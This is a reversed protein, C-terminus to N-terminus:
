PAEIVIGPDNFRSYRLTMTYPEGRSEGSHVLQLPLDDEGIWFTFEGPDPQTHRVRYKKAAVGHVREDGLAEVELDAKHQDIKLPDRWQALVGEPLPVQMTRGQTQMYLTDGIILQTGVPMRMRYRDPAVFDMETTMPQAGEMKMIAHFSKAALFKDMSAKVEDVPDILPDPTSVAEAGTNSSTAVTASDTSPAPKCATLALALCLLSLARIPM